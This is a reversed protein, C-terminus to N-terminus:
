LMVSMYYLMFNDPYFFFNVIAKEFFASFMYGVGNEDTFTKNYHALLTKVEGTYVLEPTDTPLTPNAGKYSANAKVFILGTELAQEVKAFHDGSIASGGNSDARINLNLGEGVTLDITNIQFPSYKPDIRKVTEGSISITAEASGDLALIMREDLVIVFPEGSDGGELAAVNGIVRGSFNTCTCSYDTGNYSVTYTKGLELKGGDNFEGLMMGEMDQFTVTTAPIIVGYGDGWDPQKLKGQMAEDKRKWKGDPCCVYVNNTEGVTAKSGVCCEPLDAVDAETHLIFEKVYDLQCEDWERRVEKIAM